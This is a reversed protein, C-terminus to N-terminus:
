VGSHNLMKMITGLTHITWPVDPGHAGIAPPKPGKEIDVDGLGIKMFYIKPAHWGDEKATM